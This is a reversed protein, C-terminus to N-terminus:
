EERAMKEEYDEYMIDVMHAMRVLDEYIDKKNEMERRKACEIM